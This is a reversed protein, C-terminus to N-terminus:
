NKWWGCRAARRRALRRWAALRAALPNKKHIVFHFDRQNEHLLKALTALNPDLRKLIRKKEQTNTVSVEITRDLRLEGDRVKELLKVAGQLVFDCALMHDRFRTRTREIAQAATLEEARSLLPIEGMQM